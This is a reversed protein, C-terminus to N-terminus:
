DICRDIEQIAERPYGPNIRCQGLIRNPYEKMAKIVIDNSNRFSKPDRDGSLDSVASWQIGLRDMSEIMDKLNGTHNHVDIKRYQKGERIMEKYGDKKFASLSEG